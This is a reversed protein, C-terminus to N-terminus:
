VFLWINEKATDVNKFFSNPSIKTLDKFDKIMHSQDYFLSDYTLHTLNKAKNQKMIASRFRLIKRYEAAPKGLNKIFLQNLHQRSFNYKSALDAIKIDSELDSLISNMLELNRNKIKSVWYRELLEIQLSRDETEMITKMASIFDPFPNFDVDSKKQFFPQADDVFFNIGLPKFYLTIELVSNEYVIEIPATYRAVFNASINEKKSQSVIISNQEQRIKINQNVSVIFFNNPFTFYRLPKSYKGPTMFYYGKIYKKLVENEPTYFEIKM